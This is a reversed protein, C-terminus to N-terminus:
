KFTLLCFILVYFQVDKLDDKLDLAWDRDVHFHFLTCAIKHFSLKKQYDLCGVMMM